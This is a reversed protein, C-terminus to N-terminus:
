PVAALYDRLFGSIGEYEINYQEPLPAFTRHYSLSRNVMALGYSIGFAELL